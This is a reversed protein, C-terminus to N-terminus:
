IFEVRSLEDINSAKRYDNFTRLKKLKAASQVNYSEKPNLWLIMEDSTEVKTVWIPQHAKASGLLEIPEM